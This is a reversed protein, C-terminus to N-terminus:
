RELFVMQGDAAHGEFRGPSALPFQALSAGKHDRIVLAGSSELQFSRSMYFKGPCGGEPAITGPANAAPTFTMGCRKGDASSLTWRGAMDVSARAPAAAAAGPSGPTALPASSVNGAPAAPVPDAGGTTAPAGGGLLRNGSCGALAVGAAFLLLARIRAPRGVL